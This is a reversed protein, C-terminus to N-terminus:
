PEHRCRINRNLEHVDAALSSLSKSDNERTERLTEMLERQASALPKVVETYFVGAGDRSWVVINRIAWTMAALFAACAAALTWTPGADPSTIGDALIPGLFAYCVTAVTTM